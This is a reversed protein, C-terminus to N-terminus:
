PLSVLAMSRGDDFVEDLLETQRGHYITKVRKLDNDDFPRQSLVVMIMMMMMLVCNTERVSTLLREFCPFCNSIGCSSKIPRERM